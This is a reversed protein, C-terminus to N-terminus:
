PWSKGFDKPAVVQGTFTEGTRKALFVMSPLLAEPDSRDEWERGEDKTDRAWPIAWSGETKLGPANLVNVAVNHERAEEALCRSFMHLAAKSPGYVSNGKRVMDASGSGVNIISGSRQEMMVPLVSRCTLYPGRVNVAMLQEFRSPEVDLFGENPIMLGANNVLVDVRGYADMVKRVLDRVQGEDAVDCGVAMAEGGADVIAQATEEATGALGTPSQQRAAVVVKAGQRGFELAAVRGLGRSAGTLIAVKNELEM